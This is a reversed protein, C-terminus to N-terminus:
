QCISQMNVALRDVASDLDTDAPKHRMSPNVVLLPNSSSHTTSVKKKIMEKSIREKHQEKNDRYEM